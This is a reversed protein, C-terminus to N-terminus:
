GGKNPRLIEEQEDKDKERQSELGEFKRALIQDWTVFSMTRKSSKCTQYKNWWIENSKHPFLNWAIMSAEEKSTLELRAYAAARFNQGKFDNREVQLNSSIRYENDGIRKAVLITAILLLTVSLLQSFLTAMGLTIVHSGFGIWGFVRSIYYRRPNPPRPTTLLCGILIGRPVIITAARGDPLTWFTKVTDVSMDMANETAKDLAIRHQSVAIRRVVVSILMSLTNTFGWWDGMICAFALIPTLAVVGVLLGIFENGIDKARRQCQSIRITTSSWTLEQCILWRCFWGAVDTAMIGDTVNYVAFGPIPKVFSDNAIIYGELLPLYETARNCALRGIAINLEDVGLLTVLGLADIRFPAWAKLFHLPM